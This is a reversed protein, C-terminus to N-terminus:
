AASMMARQARGLMFSAVPFMAVTLATSNSIDFMGSKMFGAPGTISYSATNINEGGGLALDVQVGGVNASPKSADSCGGLASAAVLTLLALTSRLCSKNM